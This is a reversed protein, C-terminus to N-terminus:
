SVVDISNEDAIKGAWKGCRDGWRAVPEDNINIEIVECLNSCDNCEISKAKYENQAAEFGHFNTKSKSKAVKEKALIAAGFAGM